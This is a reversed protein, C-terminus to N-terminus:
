KGWFGGVLFYDRRAIGEIKPPHPFSGDNEGTKAM